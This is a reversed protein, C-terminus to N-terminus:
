SLIKPLGVKKLEVFKGQFDVAQNDGVRRAEALERRIEAREMKDSIGGLIYIFLRMALDRGAVSMRKRN